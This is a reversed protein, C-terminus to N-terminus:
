NNEGLQDEGPDDNPHGLPRKGPAQRLDEQGAEDRAVKERPEHPRGSAEPDTSRATNGGARNQEAM